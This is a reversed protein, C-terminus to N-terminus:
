GASLFRAIFSALTAMIRPAKFSAPTAGQDDATERDVSMAVQTEGVVGIEGDFQYGLINVASEICKRTQAVLRSHWDGGRLEGVRRHASTPNAVFSHLDQLKRAVGM